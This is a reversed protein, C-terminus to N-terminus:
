GKTVTVRRETITSTQLKLQSDLNTKLANDNEKETVTDKGGKFLLIVQLRLLLLVSKKLM